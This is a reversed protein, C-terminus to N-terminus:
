QEWWKLKREFLIKKGETLKYNPKEKEIISIYKKSKSQWDTHPNKVNWEFYVLISFMNESMASSINRSSSTAVVTVLVVAAAVM